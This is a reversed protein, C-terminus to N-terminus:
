FLSSSESMLSYPSKSDSYLYSTITDNFKEMNGGTKAPEPTHEINADEHMGSIARGCVSTLGITVSAILLYSLLHALKNNDYGKEKNCFVLTMILCVLSAYYFVLGFWLIWPKSGLMIMMNSILIFFMSIGYTIYIKNTRATNIKFISISIYLILILSLIVFATVSLVPKSM